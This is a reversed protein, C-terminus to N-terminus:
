QALEDSKKKHSYKNRYRIYRAYAYINIVKFFENFNNTM